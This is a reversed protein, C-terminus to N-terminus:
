VICTLSVSNHQMHKSWTHVISTWSQPWWIHAWHVNAKHQWLLGLGFVADRLAGRQGNQRLLMAWNTTALTLVSLSISEFSLLDFFDLFKQSPLLLKLPSDAMPEKLLNPPRPEPRIAASFSHTSSLAQYRSFNLTNLFEMQCCTLYHISSWYGNANYIQSFDILSNTYIELIPTPNPQHPNNNNTM